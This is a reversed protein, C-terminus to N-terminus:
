WCWDARSTACSASSRGATGVPQLVQDRVSDRRFVAARPAASTSAHQCPLPGTGEPRLLLRTRPKRRLSAEAFRDHRQLGAAQDRGADDAAPRAAGSTRARSDAATFQHHHPSRQGGDGADEEVSRKVFAVYNKGKRGFELSDNRTGSRGAHDRGAAVKILGSRRLTIMGREIAKKKLEVRPRESWSWNGSRTTWKWSKM